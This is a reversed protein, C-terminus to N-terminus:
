KNLDQLRVSNDSASVKGPGNWDANHADARMMALRQRRAGLRYLALGAAALLAAGCVSGVVAGAIAGKSIGSSGGSTSSSDGSSGGSSAATSTAASTTSTTTAAPQETANFCWENATFDAASIYTIDACAYFTQNSSTDWQSIYQVQLTANTGATVSSPANPVSVCTHGMYLDQLSQSSVMVSFDSNSSPEESYSISIQVDYAEEQDVLAVYGGTLPFDTRNTVQAVSGCPATNDLAASWVRDSPWLFAAPGM